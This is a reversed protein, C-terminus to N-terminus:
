WQNTVNANSLNANKKRSKLIFAHRGYEIVAKIQQKKIALFILM